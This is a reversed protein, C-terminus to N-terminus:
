DNKKINKTGFLNDMFVNTGYNVTFYRHHKDHFDDIKYGSHGILVIDVTTIIVWFLALWRYPNILLLPGYVAVFNGLLDLWHMYLGSFGVPATIRHHVKHYRYFFSMHSIRHITYFFIDTLIYCAILQFFAIGGSFEDENYRVIKEFGIIMPISLVLTNCLVQLYCKRYTAMIQEHNVQQIKYNLFWKNYDCIFLLLSPIYYSTIFAFYYVLIDNM